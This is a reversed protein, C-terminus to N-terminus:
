GVYLMRRKHSRREPRKIFLLRSPGLKGLQERLPEKLQQSLLSEGLVARDGLGPYEILAWRDVRSATAALDEQAAGSVDACLERKARVAVAPLTDVTLRVKCLEM